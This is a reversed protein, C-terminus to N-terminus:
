YATYNQVFVDINAIISNNYTLTRYENMRTVLM